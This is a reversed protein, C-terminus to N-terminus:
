DALINMLMAAIADGMQCGGVESPHVANAGRSVRKASRASSPQNEFIFGDVPDVAHGVPLLLMKPDNQGRVWADFERNLSFLIKRHQVENWGSGYNSAFGDQTTGVPQTCLLYLADPMDQRLRRFFRDAESIVNERIKVRLEPMEGRYSFVNNVGLEVIVIDPARGGNIKDLWRPIDVTKQGNEFKVLPSRLLDRQWSYIIKQPVGLAKLQEREAADQVHDFEEESVTYRSLFCNFTFGGYGDHKAEAFARSGVPTYGSYGAALMDKWIQDQYKCNTLSDGLLALTVKRKPNSPMAAVSVTTTVAAVLGDDNWANVVLEFHKGADEKAPTYCWRSLESRGVKCYAQFAYNRPVVSDFVDSFYVNSELGPAAYIREPLYFDPRALAQRAGLGTVAACLLTALAGFQGTASTM